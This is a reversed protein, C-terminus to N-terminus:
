SPGGRTLLVIPLDSWTPQQAQQRHTEEREADSSVRHSSLGAGPPSKTMSQSCRPLHYLQTRGETFGDRQKSGDRDLQLSSPGRHSFDEERGTM